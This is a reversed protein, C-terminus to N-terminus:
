VQHKIHRYFPAQTVYYHTEYELYIDGNDVKKCLEEIEGESPMYIVNKEGCLSMLFSQQKNEELLKAQIL